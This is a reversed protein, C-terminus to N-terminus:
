QQNNTPTYGNYDAAGENFIKLENTTGWTRGNNHAVFGEVWVKLDAHYWIKKALIGEPQKDEAQSFAIILKTNKYKTQWELFKQWRVTLYQVTNIIVIEPSRKRALRAALVKFSESTTLVKGKVTGMGNRVMAEQFTMRDGEELDNILVTGYESLRKALMMMLNGKGNGSHGNFVWLGTREPTGFAERYEDEWDLPNFKKSLINDVTKARPIIIPETESM